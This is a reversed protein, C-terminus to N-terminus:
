ARRWEAQHQKDLHAAIKEMEADVEADTLTRDDAQLYLRYALSKRDAAVKDGSYLDFLRVDRLIKSGSAWIAALLEGAQADLQTELAMDREVIPFPIIPEYRIEAAATKVLAQLDIDAVVAASQLDFKKCIDPSVVGLRAIVEGGREAVMAESLGQVQAPKWTVALRGGEELLRQVIGKLYFLDAPPQPKWHPLSVGESALIGLRFHERDRNYLSDDDEHVAGIEFLRIGKQQRKENFSQAQLLGPLLSSRLANMESTLPNALTVPPAGSFLGTLSLETLTVAMHEHFGLNVLTSRLPDMYAQSDAIIGDFRVDVGLVPPITEYGVMRAVEEILDVELRLEPRNLPVTCRLVDDDAAESVISLRKLTAAIEGQSLTLGTLRNTFRTSIEVIRPEHPLPYIDIRGSAIEGGASDAIMQTVRDLAVIVGDIDIDREFRKSAETSLDLSKAGKRIVAPAFYASEILINTTGDTVESNEGGMIGALAVPGNGDAILLHHGGLTREVGDLTTFKQGERAFYVDIRHDALRDYDFVHLPQGLEMMVYNSADVVNNIPRMGIATLRDALWPPSPGIKIGLVVRAAYRHAGEPSAINVQALTEIPPGSETVTITPLTVKRDLKAAIDRAVGLHSFADGRNPTLDLDLVAVQGKSLYDKFDVGLPADPPLVMIGEHEDSLGLEDEACIMGHSIVGRIKAKKINFDGPLTAGVVAVPVRQGAQVNPAGCVIALTESGTNVMCLSLHDSDPVKEVAKVEGIVVGSFDHRGKEALAELGILSLMDALEE